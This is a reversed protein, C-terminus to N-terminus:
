ASQPADRNRALSSSSIRSSSGAAHPSDTHCAGEGRWPLLLPSARHAHCVRVSVRPSYGAPPGAHLGLRRWARRSRPSGSRTQCGSLARAGWSPTLRTSMGGIPHVVHVSFPSITHSIDIHFHHQRIILILDQHLVSISVGGANARLADAEPSIGARRQQRKRLIKHFPKAQADRVLLHDHGICVLPFSLPRHRPPHRDLYPVSTHDRFTEHSWGPTLGPEALNNQLAQIQKDITGLAFQNWTRFGRRQRQERNFPYGTM